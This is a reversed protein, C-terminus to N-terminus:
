PIPNSYQTRAIHVWKVFVSLPRKREDSRVERLSLLSFTLVSLFRTKLGYILRVRRCASRVDFPTDHHRSRDGHRVATLFFGRFRYYMYLYRLLFGLFPDTSIVLL